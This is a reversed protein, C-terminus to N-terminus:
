KRLQSALLAVGVFGTMLGFGVGLSPRRGGPRLWDFLVAWLPEAGIMLAALGSTVRQEAWVVGGNGLVLLLAGVIAASRWQRATPAPAGTRRAWVYLILGAVLFRASAMAFPPMTEIAVRIALYTSGWITYLAFFALWLRARPERPM